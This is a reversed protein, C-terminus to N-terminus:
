DRLEGLEGEGSNVLIVDRPSAVDARVGDHRASVIALARRALVRHQRGSIESEPQHQSLRVSANVPLVQDVESDQWELDIRCITLTDGDTVSQDHAGDSLGQTGAALQLHAVEALTIRRDVRAMPQGRPLDVHQQRATADSFVARLEVGSQLPR